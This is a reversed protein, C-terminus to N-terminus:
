REVSGGGVLPTELSSGAQDAVVHETTCVVEHGGPVTRVRMVMQVPSPAAVTRARAEAFTKDARIDAGADRRAAAQYLRDLGHAPKEDALLDGAAPLLLLAPLLIRSLNTM